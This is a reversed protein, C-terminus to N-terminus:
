PAPPYGLIERIDARIKTEAADLEDKTIIGDLFQGRLTRLAALAANLEDYEIAM